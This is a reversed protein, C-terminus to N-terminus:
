SNLTQDSLLTTFPNIGLFYIVIIILISIIKKSNNNEETKTLIKFKEEM